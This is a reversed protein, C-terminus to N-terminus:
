SHARITQEINGSSPQASKQQSPHHAPAENLETLAGGYGTVGGLEGKLEVEKYETAQELKELAEQNNAEAKRLLLEMERLQQENERMRRVDENYKKLLAAGGVGRTRHPKQLSTM